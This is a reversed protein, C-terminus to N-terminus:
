TPFLFYKFCKTSILNILIYLDTMSPFILNYLGFLKSEKFGFIDIVLVVYSILIYSFKIYFSHEHKSHGRVNKIEIYKSM